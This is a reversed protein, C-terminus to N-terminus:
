LKHNQFRICNLIVKIDKEINQLAKLVTDVDEPHIFDMINKGIFKEPYFGLISTSTPNCYNYIGDPNIIAIMDHGQQILANYRKESDNRQNVLSTIDKSQCSVGIITNDDGILPEFTIQNYQSFLKDTHNPQEEIQFYDGKLAKNYYNKWKQLYEDSSEEIFVSTNLIVEKGSIEKMVNLYSKNAYVLQYNSDIMWILDKTQELLLNKFHNEGM